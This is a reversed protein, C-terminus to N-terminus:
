GDVNKMFHYDVPQSTQYLTAYKRYYFNAYTHYRFISEQKQQLQSYLSVM